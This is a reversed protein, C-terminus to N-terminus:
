VSARPRQTSLHRSRANTSRRCLSMASSFLLSECGVTFGLPGNVFRAALTVQGGPVPLASAMEGLAVMVSYVITGMISYGLFLGLQLSRSTLTHHPSALALWGSGSVCRGEENWRPRREWFCVRAM